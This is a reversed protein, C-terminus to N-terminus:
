IVNDGFGHTSPEFGEAGALAFDSSIMCKLRNKRQEKQERKHRYVGRFVDKKM